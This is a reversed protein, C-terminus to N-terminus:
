LVEANGKGNHDGASFTYLDNGRNRLGTSSSHQAFGIKFALQKIDDTSIICLLILRLSTQMQDYPSMTMLILKRLVTSKVKM